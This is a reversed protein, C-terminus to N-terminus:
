TQDVLSCLREVLQHFQRRDQAIRGVDRRSMGSLRYIKSLLDQGWDFNPRGRIATEEILPKPNPATSPRLAASASTPTTPNSLFLAFSTIQAKRLIHGLWRLQSRFISTSFRFTSCRRCVTAHSVRSIYAAPVKLIRRLFRAQAGDVAKRLAPSRLLHLGWRGKNWVLANMINVENKLSVNSRRVFKFQNMSGLMSSLCHSFYQKCHSFRPRVRHYIGLGRPCSSLRPRGLRESPHGGHRPQVRSSFFEGDLQPANNAFFVFAERLYCKALVRLSLLYTHILNTDDAFEVDLFGFVREM